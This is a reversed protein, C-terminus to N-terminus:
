NFLGIVWDWIGVGILLGVIIIFMIAPIALWLAFGNLLTKKTRELGVPKNTQAEVKASNYETKMDGWQNKLEAKKVANSEKNADMGKKFKANNEKMSERFTQKTM